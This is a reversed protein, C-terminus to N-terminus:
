SLSDKSRAHHWSELRFHGRVADQNYCVKPRRFSVRTVAAEHLRLHLREAGEPHRKVNEVNIATFGFPIVQATDPLNAPLEPGLPVVQDVRVEAERTPHRTPLRAHRQHHRK